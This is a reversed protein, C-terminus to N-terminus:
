LRLREERAQLGRQGWIEEAGEALRNGIGSLTRSGWVRVSRACAPHRPALTNRRSATRTTGGDSDVGEAEEEEDTRVTVGAEEEAETEAAGRACACSSEALCDDTATATATATAGAAWM